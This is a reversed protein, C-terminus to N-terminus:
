AAHEDSRDEERRQQDEREQAPYAVKREVLLDPARNVAVTRLDSGRRGACRHGVADDTRAAAHEVVFLRAKAGGTAGRQVYRRLSLWGCRGRRVHDTGLAVLSDPRPLEAAVAACPQSLLM